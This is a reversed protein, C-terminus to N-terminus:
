GLQTRSRSDLGSTIKKIIFSLVSLHLSNLNDVRNKLDDIHGNTSNELNRRIEKLSPLGTFWFNIM